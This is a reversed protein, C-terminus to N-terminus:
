LLPHIMVRGGGISGKVKIKKYREAGECDIKTAISSTSPTATVVYRYLASTTANALTRCMRDIPCTQRLDSVMSSYVEEASVFDNHQSANYIQLAEHGIGQAFSDLSTVVYKSLQNWNWKYLDDPGPWAETAQATTGVM